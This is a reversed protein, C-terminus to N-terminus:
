PYEEPDLPSQIALTLEHIGPKQIAAYVHETAVVACRQGAEAWHCRTRDECWDCRYTDFPSASWAIRRVEPVHAEMWRLIARGGIVPLGLDVIATDVGVWRNKDLLLDFLSTVVEVDAGPAVHRLHEGLMMAVDLDDEIVMIKRDPM